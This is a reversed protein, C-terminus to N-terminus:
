RGKTDAFAPRTASGPPSPNPVSRQRLAAQLGDDGRRVLEWVRNADDRVNKFRVARAAHGADAAAGQREHIRAHGNGIRDGAYGDTQDLFAIAEGQEGVDHAVLVVVAVHIELDCACAAAHGANLEIQFDV